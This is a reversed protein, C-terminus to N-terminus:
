PFPPSPTLCVFETISVNGSAYCCPGGRVVPMKGTRSRADRRTSSEEAPLIAVSGMALM